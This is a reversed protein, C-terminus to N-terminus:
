SALDIKKYQTSNKAPAPCFLDGLFEPRRGAPLQQPRRDAPQQPFTPAAITRPAYGLAAGVASPNNLATASAKTKGRRQNKPRCGLIGSGPIRLPM